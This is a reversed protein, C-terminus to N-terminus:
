LARHDSGPVFFEARGVDDGGYQLDGLGTLMLMRARAHVPVGRVHIMFDAATGLNSWKQPLQAKIPSSLKQGFAREASISQVIYSITRCLGHQESHLTLEPTHHSGSLTRVRSTKSRSAM